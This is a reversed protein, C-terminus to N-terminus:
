GGQLDSRRRGQGSRVSRRCRIRGGELGALNAAVFFPGAVPVRVDAQSCARAAALNYTDTGVIVSRHSYLRFVEIHGQALLSGDRSVEWPTRGMVRAAHEYVSPCFPHLWSVMM